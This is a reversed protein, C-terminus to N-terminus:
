VRKAHRQMYQLFEVSNAPSELGQAEEAIMDAMTKTKDPKQTEQPRQNAPQQVALMPYTSLQFETQM